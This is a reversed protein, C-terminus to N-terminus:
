GQSESSGEDSSKEAEDSSASAETAEEGEETEEESDTEEVQVRPAAVRVITDNANNVAEFKQNDMVDGVNLFENVGLGSIDVEINQPINEPLVLITLKDMKKILVGGMKVGPPSGIFKIPVDLRVKKEKNLRLFDVHTEKRTLPHRDVHYTIVFEDKNDVNFTVVQNQGYESKFLTHLDKESVTIPVSDAGEGYIVAPVLADARLKKVQNKGLESRKSVTYKFETM